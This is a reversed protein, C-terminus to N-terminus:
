STSESRAAKTVSCILLAAIGLYDTMRIRSM